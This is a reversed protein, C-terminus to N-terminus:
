LGISHHNEVNKSGGDETGFVSTAATLEELDGYDSVEPREYAM